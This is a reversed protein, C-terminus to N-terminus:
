ASSCVHQKHGPARSTSSSHLEVLRYVPLVELFFPRVQPTPLAGHRSLPRSAVEAMDVSRRAAPVSRASTRGQRLEVLCFAALVQFVMLLTSSAHKALLQTPFSVCRRLLASARRTLGRAAPRARGCELVEM